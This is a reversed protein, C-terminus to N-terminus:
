LIFIDTRWIKHMDRVFFQNDTLGLLIHFECINQSAMLERLLKKYVYKTILEDMINKM